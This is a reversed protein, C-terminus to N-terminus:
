FLKSRLTLGISFDNDDTIYENLFFGVNCSLLLDAFINYSLVLRWDHTSTHSTTTFISTSRNWYYGLEFTLRPSPLLNANINIRSDQRLGVTGSFDGVPFNVRESFTGSARLNWYESFSFTPQITFRRVLSDRGAEYDETRQSYREAALEYAVRIGRTITTEGGFALELRHARPLTYGVASDRREFRVTASTNLTTNKTLRWRITSRIHNAVKSWDRATAITYSYSDLALSHRLNLVFGRPLQLQANTSMMSKDYTYLSGAISFRELPPEGDDDFYRRDTQQQSFSWQLQNDSPTPKFDLNVKWGWSESVFNYLPSLPTRVRYEPIPHNEPYILYFYKNLWVDKNLFDTRQLSYNGGLLLSTSFPGDITTDTSLSYSYRNQDREILLMDRQLQGSFNYNLRFGVNKFPKYDGTLTSSLIGYYYESDLLPQIPYRRVERAGQVDFVLRTAKTLNSTATLKSGASLMSFARDIFDFFYEYSTEEVESYSLNAGLDLRLTETLNFTAQTGARHTVSAVSQQSRDNRSFRDSLEYFVNLRSGKAINYELETRLSRYSSESEDRPRNEINHTTHLRLSLKDTFAYIYGLTSVVKNHRKGGGFDFTYGPQTVRDGGDDRATVPQVSAMIIILLLAQASRSM